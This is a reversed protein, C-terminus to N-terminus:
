DVLMEKIILKMKNVTKPDIKGLKKILRIKDVTRIQDLM